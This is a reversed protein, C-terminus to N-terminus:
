LMDDDEDDSNNSSCPSASRQKSRASGSETCAQSKLGHGCLRLQFFLPQCLHGNDDDDDDDDDGDDDDNDDDEDEDDADPM